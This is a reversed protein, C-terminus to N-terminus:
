AGALLTVAWVAIGEGRGIAGLGETTSAKISVPAGLADGLAARMAATHPSLRPREAVVTVDASMPVWGAAAAFRVVQALLHTSRAGAWKPDSDPFHTGLDGLGAAGLVADALAHCVVDADSHGALGREGAITVGGLVLPRDDTGWPHVDFGHGIRLGSSAGGRPRLRDVDEPHTVKINGAEGAVVVVRGGAQEVLAADDTAEGAAAHARRLWQADFAQPTQVAFLGNRDVTRSVAGGEVQKLTDAVPLGPV